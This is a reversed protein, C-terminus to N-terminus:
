TGRTKNKENMSKEIARGRAKEYSSLNGDKDLDAKGPNMLNAGRQLRPVNTPLEMIHKKATTGGKNLMKAGKEADATKGERILKRRTQKDKPGMRENHLRRAKVEAKGEETRLYKRRNASKDIARRLIGKKEDKKEDEKLDVGGQNKGKPAPNSKLDKVAVPSELYESLAMTEDRKLDFYNSRAQAEDKSSLGAM